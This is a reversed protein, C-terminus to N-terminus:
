KKKIKCIELTFSNKKQTKKRFLKIKEEIRKRREIRLRLRGCNIQV